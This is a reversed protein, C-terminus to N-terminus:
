FPQRRGLFTATERFFGPCLLVVDCNILGGIIKEYTKYQNSVIRMREIIDTINFNENSFTELYGIHGTLKLDKNDRIDKLTNVIPIPKLEFFTRLLLSTFSKSIILSSYLWIIFLCILIWKHIKNNRRCYIRIDEGSQETLKGLLNIFLKVM